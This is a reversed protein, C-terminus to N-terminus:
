ATVTERFIVEIPEDFVNLPEGGSERKLDMWGRSKSVGGTITDDMTLVLEGDTGDTLFTVIWTALLTSTRDKEARVESTVEDQSVDFPLGVTVTCTRGKHVIVQQQM